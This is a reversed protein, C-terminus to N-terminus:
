KIAELRKAEIRKVERDLRFKYDSELNKEFVERMRMITNQRIRAREIFVSISPASQKIFGGGLGRKFVQRSNKKQIFAGRLKRSKGKIIQVKIVRRKSVPIGKQKIIGKDKLFSLLPIPADNFSIEGSLTSYGKGSARSIAIDKKIRSAKLNILDRLRKSVDTKGAVLARNISYRASQFFVKENLGEISRMAEAINSTMDIKISM